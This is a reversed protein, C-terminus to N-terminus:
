RMRRRRLLTICLGAFLMLARGPEPVAIISLVGTTNNFIGDLGSGLNLAALNLGLAGTIIAGGQLDILTWQDGAAFGSLAAPNGLVLTGGLTFDLTGFLRLRDASSPDATLDGGRTLIDLGLTSTAGLVTSGTGSIELDSVVPSGLTTDGVILAGNMTVFGTGNAIVGTGSLTSNSTITVATTTVTANAVLTGSNQVTTPGNYNSSANVVLTTADVVLDSNASAGSIGTGNV